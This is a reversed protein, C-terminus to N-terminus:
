FIFGLVLLLVINGVIYLREQSKDLSFPLGSFWNVVTGKEMLDVVQDILLHLAFTLVLGRGFISSSSTVILFAFITFILQFFVTHFILDKRQGGTEVLLDWTKTVQREEILTAVKQSAAEKPKLVYVYILHDIDPLLTGILGGVWFPIYQVAFWDKVISSLLLYSITFTFHTVLDKKMKWNGIWKQVKLHWNALEEDSIGKNKLFNKLKVLESM